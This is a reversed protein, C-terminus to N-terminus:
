MSWISIDIHWSAPNWVRIDQEQQYVLELLLGIGNQTIKKREAKM